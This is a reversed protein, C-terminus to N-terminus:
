KTPTSTPACASTTSSKSPRWRPLPTEREGRRSAAAAAAAAAPRHLTVARLHAPCTALRHAAANPPHPAYTATWARLAPGHPCPPLTHRPSPVSSEVISGLSYRVEELVDAWPPTDDDDDLKGYEEDHLLKESDKM